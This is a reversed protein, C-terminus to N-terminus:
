TMPCARDTQSTLDTHDTQLTQGVWRTM